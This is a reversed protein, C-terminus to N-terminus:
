PGVFDGKILKGLPNYFPNYDKVAQDNNSNLHNNNHGSYHQPPHTPAAPAHTPAQQYLHAPVHPNHFPSYGSPHYSQQQQPQHHHQPQHQYQNPNYPAPGSPHQPAPSKPLHDGEVQFGDKGARYKVTIIKGSPDTYSYQGQVSGDPSVTESRGSDGANYNTASYDQAYALAVGM